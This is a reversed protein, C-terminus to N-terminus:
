HDRDHRNPQTFHDIAINTLRCHNGVQGNKDRFQIIADGPTFGNRFHLGDIHINEGSIYFCSKGEIYVKGPTKASIRIPKNKTGKADLTLVLDAWIGDALLIEDGPQAQELAQLLATVDGANIPLTKDTTCSGALLSLIISLALLFKM